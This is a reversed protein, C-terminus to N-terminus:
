STSERRAYFTQAHESFTSLPSCLGPWNIPFSFLHIKPNYQPYPYKVNRTEYNENRFKYRKWPYGRMSYGSDSLNSVRRDVDPRRKKKRPSKQGMLVWNFRRKISRTTSIQASQKNSTFGAEQPPVFGIPNEFPLLPLEERQDFVPIWVGHEIYSSEGETKRSSQMLAARRWNKEQRSISAGCGHSRDVLLPKNFFGIQGIYFVTLTM